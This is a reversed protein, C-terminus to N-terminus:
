SYRVYSGHRDVSCHYYLLSPSAHCAFHVVLLTYELYLKNCETEPAGRDAEYVSVNLPTLLLRGNLSGINM